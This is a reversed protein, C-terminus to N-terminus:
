ERVCRVSLGYIKDIGHATLEGNNRPEIAQRFARGDGDEAASWWFGEEGIHYFHGDNSRMGGPLASFGFNDTGNDTHRVVWGTKTRLNIGVDRRMPDTSVANVLSRWDDRNPLRWGAPCARMATNWDYLRGYTNCHSDNNRYCWSNGTRFNLNQAMWIRDGIKVIRYRKGDRSDTLGRRILEAEEAAKAAGEALATSRRKRTEEVTQRILSDNPDLELVPELYTLASDLDGDNLYISGVLTYAKVNNRDLEIAKKFDEIARDPENNAEYAIGRTLYSESSNPNIRIARSFDVIAKNYENKSKQALGRGFYAEASNPDRGIAKTYEAIAKDFEGTNHYELGRRLNPDTRGDNPKKGWGLRNIVDRIENKYRDPARVYILSNEIYSIYGYVGGSTISFNAWNSISASTTARTSSGMDELREKNGNFAAEAQARSAFKHFDIRYDQTNKVAALSLVTNGGTAATVDSVTFGLSTLVSSFDQPDVPTKSCGSFLFAFILAFCLVCGKKILASKM